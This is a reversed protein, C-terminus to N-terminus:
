AQGGGSLALTLGTLFAAKNVGRITPIPEPALPDGIGCPPHQFRVQGPARPVASAALPCILPLDSRHIKYEHGPVNKIDVSKSSSWGM